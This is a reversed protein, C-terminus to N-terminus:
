KKSWYYGDVDKEKKTISKNIMKRSINTKRIADKISEFEVIMNDRSRIISIGPSGTRPAFSWVSYKAREDLDKFLWSFGGVPGLKGRANRSVYGHQFDHSREAEHTSKYEVTFGLVHTGIVAKSYDLHAEALLENKEEKTRLKSLDFPKDPTKPDYKQFTYTKSALWCTTDNIFNPDEINKIIISVITPHVKYHDAAENITDFKREEMTLVNLARVATANFNDKGCKTGNGEGGDTCNYGNRRTDFFKIYYKELEKAESLILQDELIETKINDWGYFNVANHFAPNSGNARAHETERRDKNKTYGIYSKESPSTHKYIVHTGYKWDDTLDSM